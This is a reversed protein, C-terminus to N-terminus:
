KQDETTTKNPLCEKCYSGEEGCILTYNMYGRAGKTFERFRKGCGIANTDIFNGEVFKGDELRKQEM